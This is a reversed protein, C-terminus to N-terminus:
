LSLAMQLVRRWGRHGGSPKAIGNGREERERERVASAGVRRARGERRRLPSASRANRAPRSAAASKRQRQCAASQLAASELDAQAVGRAEKGGRRRAHFAGASM